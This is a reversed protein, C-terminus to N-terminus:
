VSQLARYVKNNPIDSFSAFGGEGNKNWECEVAMALGFLPLFKIFAYIHDYGYIIIHM